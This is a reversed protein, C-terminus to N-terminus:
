RRAMSSSNKSVGRGKRSAAPASSAWSGTRPLTIALTLSRVARSSASPWSEQAPTPAGKARQHTTTRSSAPATTDAAM